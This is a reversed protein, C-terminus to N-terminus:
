GNTNKLPRFPGSHIFKIPVENIEASLRDRLAPADANLHITLVYGGSEDKEVGVGSVEPMQLLRFSHQEKVRSVEEETAM